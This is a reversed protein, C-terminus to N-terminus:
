VSWPREPNLILPPKRRTNCVLFFGGFVESLVVEDFKM